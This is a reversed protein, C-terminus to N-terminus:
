SYRSSSGEISPGWEIEGGTGITVRPVEKAGISLHYRTGWREGIRTLARMQVLRALDRTATASPAGTISSYNGASLGGLFGGPGERFMRLLANEQRENLQGQLSNLLRAKELVFEVHIQTRRQAELTIGAFWALWETADNSKTAVELQDYYGRRHGLITAAM